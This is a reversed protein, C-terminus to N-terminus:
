SIIVQLCPSLLLVEIELHEEDHVDNSICGQVRGGGLGLVGSFGSDAILMLSRGSEVLLLIFQM